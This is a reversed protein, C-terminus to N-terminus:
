QEGKGRQGAGGLGWRIFEIYVLWDFGFGFGFGFGLGFHPSEGRMAFFTGVVLVLFAM